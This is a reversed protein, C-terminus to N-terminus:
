GADAAFAGSTPMWTIKHIQPGNAASIVVRLASTFRRLVEEIATATAMAATAMAAHLLLVVLEDEDPAEPVPAGLPPVAVPSIVQTSPLIRADPELAWALAIV